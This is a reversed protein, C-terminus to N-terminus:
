QLPKPERLFFNHEACRQPLLTFSRTEEVERGDPLTVRLTYEGPQIVAFHYWGDEASYVTYNASESELDFKAGVIRTLGPSPRASDIVLGFVEPVANALDRLYPLELKADFAPRTRSCSSTELRDRGKHRYAYVLYPFGPRFRYGCTGGGSRTYVDVEPEVDGRFVEKVTFKTKNWAPPPPPPGEPRDFWWSRDPPEQIAVGVFVSDAAWVVECAPRIEGCSCASSIAPQLLYLSLLIPIYLRRVRM